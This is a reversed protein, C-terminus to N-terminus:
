CEMEINILIKWHSFGLTCYVLRHFCIKGWVEACINHNIKEARCFVSLYPSIRVRWVILSLFFSDSKMVYQVNKNELFWFLTFTGTLIFQFVNKKLQYLFWNFFTLKRRCKGIPSIITLKWGLMNKM